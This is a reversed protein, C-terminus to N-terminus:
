IVYVVLGLLVFSTATGLLMWLNAIDANKTLHMCKDAYRKSEAEAARTEKIAQDRDTKVSRLEAYLCDMENEVEKLKTRATCMINELTLLGHSGIIERSHNVAARTNKTRNFISNAILIDNVLMMPKVPTM